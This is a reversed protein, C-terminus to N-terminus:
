TLCVKLLLSEFCSFTAASDPPKSKKVVPTVTACLMGRNQDPLYLCKDFSSQAYDGKLYGHFPCRAKHYHSYVHLQILLLFHSSRVHGVLYAEVM